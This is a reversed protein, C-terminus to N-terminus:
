QRIDSRRGRGDGGHALRHLAVRRDMKRHARVVARGGLGVIQVPDILAHQDVLLLVADPEFHDQCVVGLVKHIGVREAPDVVVGLPVVHDLDRHQSQRRRKAFERVADIAVFEGLELEFPIPSLLM